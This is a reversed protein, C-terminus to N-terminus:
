AGGLAASLLLYGRGEPSTFLGILRDPQDERAAGAVSTETQDVLLRARRRLDPDREMTRALLAVHNPAHARVAERMADIGASRRAHAAGRAGDMSLASPDAGLDEPADTAEGGGFSAFSRAAPAPERPPTERRPAAPAPERRAETERLGSVIDRWSLGSEFKPPADEQPASPVIREQAAFPDRRAAGAAGGGASVGIAGMRMVLDSLLEYNHRMRAQLAADIERAEEAADRAAGRMGDIGKRVASELEALRERATEPFQGLNDGAADIRREVEDLQERWTKLSREFREALAADAEDALRGVRSVARTAEEIRRELVKEARQAAEFTSEGIQEVKSQISATQAEMAAAAAESATQAKTAAEDLAQLRIRQSEALHETRSLIMDGLDRARTLADEVAARLAEGGARTTEAMDEAGKGAVKVLEGLEARHFDLASAIRKQEERLTRSAEDMEERHSEYLQNLAKGQDAFNAALADLNQRQADLAGAARESQTLAASSASQLAEAGAELRNRGEEAASEALEAARAVMRSQDAIADAVTKAKTDLVDALAALAERETRLDGILARSQEEARRTAGELSDAHHRIVEEMASLRALAADMGANIRGVEASLVASLTRAEDEVVREPRTLRRAAGAVLRAEASFRIMQRAAIGALIVFLAPGFAIFSLGAIQAPTSATLAEIGSYGILYAACGAIWLVGLSGGLLVAWFGGRRGGGEDLPTEVPTLSRDRAPPELAEIEIIHDQIRDHTATEPTM